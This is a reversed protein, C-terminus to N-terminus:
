QQVSEARVRYFAAETLPQDNFSTSVSTAVQEDVLTWEGGTARDSRELALQLPFASQVAIRFGTAERTLATIKPLTNLAETVAAGLRVRGWGFSEDWGASGKDIATVRLVDLVQAAKLAPNISMVMAAVGSFLPASFSTGRAVAYSNGTTTSYVDWGPAAFDIHPGSVSRANDAADTM